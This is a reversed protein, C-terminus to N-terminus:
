RIMVALLTLNDNDITIRDMMRLLLLEVWQKSNEAKYMDIAIEGDRLYEWAGDSCLLFGDGAEIPKKCAFIEPEFREKGGLARLLSSQDEDYPLEDRTIEGAKYKKYAVSHDETVINIWGDHIYYLRSDGSHAWVAMNGDIALTVVTSKIVTNKEAQISLINNNAETIRSQLWESRNCAECKWGRLITDKVCESALEGYSHGGLGDAVVFIGSDRDVSFGVADENYDRGGKNSFGYVDFTM